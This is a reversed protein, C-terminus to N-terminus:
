DGDEGRRPRHRRQSSHMLDEPDPDLGGVEKAFDGMSRCIEMSLELVPNHIYVVNEDGSGHGFKDLNELGILEDMNDIPADREDALVDDGSFYTYSVHDVGHEENETFEDKHIVFPRSGTRSELERQYDWVVQPEGVDTPQDAEFVNRTTDVQEKDIEVDVEPPKEDDPSTPAKYGLGEVVDDLKTKRKAEREEAASWKTRFHDRMQSIEEEAFQQYKTELRTKAWYYGIAIGGATGIVSGFLVLAMANGAAIREAAEEVAVEAAETVASDAM